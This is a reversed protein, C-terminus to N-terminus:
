RPGRDDLDTVFLTYMAHGAHEPKVEFKLYRHEALDWVAEVDNALVGAALRAPARVM